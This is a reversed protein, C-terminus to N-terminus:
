KGLQTPQAQKHETQTHPLVCNTGVYNCTNKRWCGNGRQETLKEPLPQSIKMEAVVKLNELRFLREPHQQLNWTSITYVSSTFLGPNTKHKIEMSSISPLHLGENASM